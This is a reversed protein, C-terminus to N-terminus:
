VSRFKYIEMGHTKKVDERGYIALIGVASAANKMRKSRHTGGAAAKRRRLVVFLSLKQVARGYIKAVFPLIGFCDFALRIDEAQFASAKRGL